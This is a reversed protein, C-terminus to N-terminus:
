YRTFPSTFTGVHRCRTHWIYLCPLSGPLIIVWYSTESDKAIMLSDTGGDNAATGHGGEQSVSKMRTGM